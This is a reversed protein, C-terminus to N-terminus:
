AAHVLVPRCAFDFLVGQAILEPRSMGHIERNGHGEISRMSQVAVTLMMTVAEMGPLHSHKYFVDQSFPRKKNVEVEM